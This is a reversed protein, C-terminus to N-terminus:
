SQLFAAFRPACRCLVVAHKSARLQKNTSIHSNQKYYSLKYRKNIYSNLDPFIQIL